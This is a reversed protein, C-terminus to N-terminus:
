EKNPPFVQGGGTNPKDEGIGYHACIDDMENQKWVDWAGTIGIIAGCAIQMRKPESNPVPREMPPTFVQFFRVEPIPVYDIYTGDASTVELIRM